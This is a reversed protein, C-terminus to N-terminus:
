RPTFLLYKLTYYAAPDSTNLAYPQSNNILSFVNFLVTFIVLGIIINGIFKHLKKESKVAPDNLIDCIIIAACLAVPYAFDLQYRLTVGGMELDTFLLMGSLALATLCFHFLDHKKLSDRRKFILFSLWLVPATMFLGGLLPDIFLQGMFDVPENGWGYLSSIYPFTGSMNVPQFLYEFIGFAFFGTKFERHVYDTATLNYTSGFDLPNGFRIYNFYM